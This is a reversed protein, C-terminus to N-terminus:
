SSVSILNKEYCDFVAETILSKAKETKTPKMEIFSKSFTFKYGQRQYWEALQVKFPVYKNKAKLIELSMVKGGLDIAKQEAAEILLRGIGHGKKSFDVALLGFSFHHNGLDSLQITGVVEDNLLATFVIEQEIIEKYEELSVRVYNEGWIEKETEAYANILIEHQKEINTSNGASERTSIIKVSM